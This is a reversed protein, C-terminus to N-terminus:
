KPGVRRETALITLGIALALMGITLLWALHGSGTFPLADRALFVRGYDTHLGTGSASRSSLFLKVYRGAPGRFDKYAYSACATGDARVTEHKGVLGDISSSVVRDSHEFAFGSGCFTVTQGPHLVSPRVRLTGSSADASAGLVM